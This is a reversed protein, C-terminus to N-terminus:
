VKGETYRQPPRPYEGRGARQRVEIMKAISMDIIDQPAIGREQFFAFISIVVDVGEENMRNWQRLTPEENTTEVYLEDTERRIQEVWWVPNHKMFPFDEQLDTQLEFLHDLSEKM